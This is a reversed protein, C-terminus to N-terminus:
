LTPFFAYPHLGPQAPGVSELLCRIPVRPLIDQKNHNVVIPSVPSPSLHFAEGTRASFGSKEEPCAQPIGKFDTAAKLVFHERM